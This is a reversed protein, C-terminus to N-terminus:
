DVIGDIFWRDTDRERFIRYVSGDALAVDWEDRNWPANALCPRCPPCPQDTRGAGVAEGAADVAWWDGSTRWPGALAVVAGGPFGQRDTMVRCPRNGDMSVRAPM